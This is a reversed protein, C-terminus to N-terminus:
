PRHMQVSWVGGLNTVSASGVSRRRVVINNPTLISGTVQLDAHWNAPDVPALTVVDGLQANNLFNTTLDYGGASIVNSSLATIQESWAGFKKVIHHTSVQLFPSIGAEFTGVVGQSEATTAVDAGVSRYTLNTAPLCLLILLPLLRKM